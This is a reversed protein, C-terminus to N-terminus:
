ITNRKRDFSVSDRRANTVAHITARCSNDGAVIWASARPMFRRRRCNMSINAAHIIAPMFQRYCSHDGPSLKHRHERCLNDGSTKANLGTLSLDMTACKRNRASKPRDTQTCKLHCGICQHSKVPKRSGTRESAASATYVFHCVDFILLYGRKYLGLFLRLFSVIM